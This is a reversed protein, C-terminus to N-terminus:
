LLPTVRHLQSHTIKKSIVRYKYGHLTEQKGATQCTVGIVTGCPCDIANPVGGCETLRDEMGTCARTLRSGSTHTSQQGESCVSEITLTAGTSQYISLHNQQTM